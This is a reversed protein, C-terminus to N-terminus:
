DIEYIEKGIRVHIKSYDIRLRDLHDDPMEVSGVTAPKTPKDDGGERVSYVLSVHPDPPQYFIELGYKSMVGDVLTILRGVAPSIMIDVPLAGFVTNGQDNWYARVDNSLFITGECHGKLVGRLEDM